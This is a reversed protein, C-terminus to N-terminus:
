FREKVHAESYGDRYASDVIMNALYGMMFSLYGLAFSLGGLLLCTHLGNAAGLIWLVIQAVTLAGGLLCLKLGNKGFFYMPRDYYRLLFSSSMSDFLGRLYREFGYKSKGFQRKNHHVKIEAIKFGKRHALVPIYRHYEGYVDIAKVVEKRYAKFGCNFDHLQVGSLKCTVKNFLKSPLRKELPDLRNYKWGSVMDYGEDLKEIFSRLERPDDQLDADMTIVIDGDAARFAAQLAAAKGFNKRFVIMHVNPDQAALERVVQVSADTSGDDVFLMEYSGILDTLEPLHKQIEAYLPRLSEEENYVPIVLTLKRNNIM